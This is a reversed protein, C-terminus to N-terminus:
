GLEADQQAEIGGPQNGVEARVAALQQEQREEYEEIFDMDSFLGRFAEQVQTLTAVAAAEPHEFANFRYAPLVKIRIVNLLGRVAKPDDFLKKAEIYHPRNAELWQRREKFGPDNEITM